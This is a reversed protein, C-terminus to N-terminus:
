NSSAIDVYLNLKQGPKLHKKTNLENWSAIDKVSVNFKNAIRYLSDGSRVRYGVKKVMKRSAWQTQSNGDSWLVLKQGPRLLDRPSMNNWSALQQVGVKHRQAIEWWSDGTRVTYETRSRGKQAAKPMAGPGGAVALQALSRTSPIVLKQGIRVVNNRLRNVQRIVEPTTSFKKAILSLSDGRSVQYHSWRIRKEPPVLALAKRFTEASTKPVLLQHPGDPNTAWQNFAPNLHFIEDVEIEALEAAQVLDIQSGVDVVEFYPENEVPSLAIDYYEPHHVIKALALLKPVYAQTERPLDLNWYDTPRGREKNNRIAKMVTGAGSNYAALALLWDGDFMKSLKQLYSLAANTSALVDRRGDYWWNQHLGYIKGTSPIFQWLGAAQGHSYAFPQFASEVVPLLAIEMPMQRREVEEVIYHMYRRGREVTREIHLPNAVYWNLEKELRPHSVGHDWGFGRRIRFWLDQTPDTPPTVALMGLHGRSIGLVRQYPDAIDRNYLYQFDSQTEAGPLSSGGQYEAGHEDPDHYPSQNDLAYLARSRTDSKAASDLKPAFSCGTILLACLAIVFSPMAGKKACLLITGAGWRNLAVTRPM